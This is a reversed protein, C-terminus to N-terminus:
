ANENTLHWSIKLQAPVAPNGALYFIVQGTQPLAKTLWCNLVDAETGDQITATIISTPLCSPIVLTSSYLGGASGWTLGSAIGALQVSGVGLSQRIRPNKLLSISM